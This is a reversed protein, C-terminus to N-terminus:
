LAGKFQLMWSFGASLCFIALFSAAVMYITAKAFKGQKEAKDALAGAIVALAGWFIIEILM